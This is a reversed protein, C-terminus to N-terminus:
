CTGPWIAATSRRSIPPLSRRRASRTDYWNYFHGRYRPLDLLTAFTPELRDVVGSFSIYGFDYAALTAILQLGINTPSTRHAVLEDRDEQYNDPVLWHDGPALLDEFFRWTKRAIKRLAAREAPGLPQREHTLPRGTMYAIVPSLLWLAIM